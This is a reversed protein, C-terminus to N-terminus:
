DADGQLPVQGVLLPLRGAFLHQRLDRSGALPLQRLVQQDPLGPLGQGAADHFHARGADRLFFDGGPLPEQLLVDKTGRGQRELFVKDKLLDGLHFLDVDIFIVDIVFDLTQRVLGVFRRPPNASAQFFVVQQVGQGRLDDLALRKVQDQSSSLVLIHRDSRLWGARDGGDLFLRHRAFHM